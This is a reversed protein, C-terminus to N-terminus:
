AEEGDGVGAPLLPTGLMEALSRAIEPTAALVPNGRTLSGDTLYDNVRGGAEQM